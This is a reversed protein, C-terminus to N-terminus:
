TMFEVAFPVVGYRWILLRRSANIGECARFSELTRLHIHEAGVSHAFVGLWERNRGTDGKLLAPVVRELASVREANEVPTAVDPRHSTGVPEIVVVHAM